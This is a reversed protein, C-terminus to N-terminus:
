AKRYVGVHTPFVSGCAPHHRIRFTCGWMHPSFSTLPQSLMWSTPVGGCTHPFSEFIHGFDGTSLYVGVHTPFVKVTCIATECGQTCGWMHPSFEHSILREDFLVPVGGCTHPFSPNHPRPRRNTLYVGVHTPFVPTVPLVSRQRGTCGWM